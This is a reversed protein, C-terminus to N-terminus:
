ECSFIISEDGTEPNQLPLNLRTPNAPQHGVYQWSTEPNDGCKADFYEANNDRFGALMILLTVTIPDM